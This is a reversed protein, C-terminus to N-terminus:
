RTATKEIGIGVDRRQRHEGGAGRGAGHHVADVPHEVSRYFMRDRHHARRAMMGLVRLRHAEAQDVIDSDAQEGRAGPTNPADPHEVEVDVVAVAGLVTEFVVGLHEVRRGM